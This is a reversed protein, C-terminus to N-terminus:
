SVELTEALSWTVQAPGDDPVDVRTDLLRAEFQLPRPGAYVDTDLIVRMTSGRPIQTWDPGGHAKGRQDVWHDLTTLAWGTAIGAAAALDANAHRQIASENSVSSHQTWTTLEPWGIQDVLRNARAERQLQAADTGDGIAVARTTSRAVDRTRAKALVNGGRRGIRGNSYTGIPFLDNLLMIRPAQPAPAPAETDEVFHLVADGEVKHNGHQDALMLVRKPAARTGSAAVYWEPGGEADAIRRYATEADLNEWSKIDFNSTHAGTSPPTDVHVNCGTRAQAGIIMARFLDHDNQMNLPGVPAPFRSFISGWEKATFRFTRDAAEQESTVWGSWIPVEDRCILIGSLAPTIAARWPSRGPEVTASFSAEGHDRNPLSFSLDRAPLLEEM